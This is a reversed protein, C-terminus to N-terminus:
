PRVLQELMVTNLISGRVIRLRTGEATEEVYVVKGSVIQDAFLRVTIIDGVKPVM